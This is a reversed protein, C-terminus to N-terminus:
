SVSEFTVTQSADSPRPRIALLSRSGSSIMVANSSDIMKFPLIASSAWSDVIFKLVVRVTPLLKWYEILRFIADSVSWVITIGDALRRRARDWCLIEEPTRLASLWLVPSRPHAWRAFWVRQAWCRLELSVAPFCCFHLRTEPMAETALSMPQSHVPHIARVLASSRSTTQACRQRSQTHATSPNPRKKM